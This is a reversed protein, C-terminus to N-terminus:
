TTILKQPSYVTSIGNKVPFANVWLAVFYLIEIKMRRPVHTYSLTGLIGRSRVKVVRIQREVEAVHEKAATTNCVISPLENKIKKFEGDMVAIFFNTVVNTM